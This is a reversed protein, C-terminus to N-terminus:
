GAPKGEDPNATAEKGTWNDIVKVHLAGLMEMSSKLKFADGVSDADGFFQSPRTDGVPPISWVSFEKARKPNKGVKDQEMSRIIYRSIRLGIFGAPKEKQPGKQILANSTV